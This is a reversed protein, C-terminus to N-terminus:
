TKPMKYFKSCFKSLIHTYAFKLSPLHRSLLLSASQHHAVMLCDLIALLGHEITCSSFNTEIHVLASVPANNLTFWMGGEAFGVIAAM